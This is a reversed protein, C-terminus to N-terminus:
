MAGLMEKIAYSLRKRKEDLPLNKVDGEASSLYIIEFTNADILTLLMAAAPANEITIKGKKDVKEKIADMYSAALYAVYFVHNKTVPIKGKKALEANVIQQLETNIDLDDSASADGEAFGSEDLIQYTKYGQLNVKESKLAVVEIDDTKVCGVTFGVIMLGIITSKLLKSM